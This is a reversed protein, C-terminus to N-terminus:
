CREVKSVRNIKNEPIGEKRSLLTKVLGSMGTSLNCKESYVFSEQVSNSGLLSFNIKYKYM